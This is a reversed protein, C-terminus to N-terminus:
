WRALPDNAAARAALQVRLMWGIAVASVIALVALLVLPQWAHLWVMIVSGAACISLSSPVAMAAGTASEALGLRRVLAWGPVVSVFGLALLLRIPGDGGLAVEAALAAIVILCGIDIGILVRADLPQAAQRTAIPPVSRSPLPTVPPAQLRPVAAARVAPAPEYRIPPAEPPMASAADV